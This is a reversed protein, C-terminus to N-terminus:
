EGGMRHFIPDDYKAKLAKKMRSFEDDVEKEEEVVAATLSHRQKDCGNIAGSVAKNASQKNFLSAWSKPAAPAVGVGNTLKNETQCVTGNVTVQNAAAVLKTDITQTDNATNSLVASQTQRDNAVNGSITPQAQIENPTNDSVASYQQVPLPKVTATAANTQQVTLRTYPHNQIIQNNNSNVFVQQQQTFKQPYM